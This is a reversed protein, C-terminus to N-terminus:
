EVIIRSDLVGTQVMLFPQYSGSGHTISMRIYKLSIELPGLWLFTIFGILFLSRLVCM